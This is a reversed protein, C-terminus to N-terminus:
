RAAGEGVATSSSPVVEADAGLLGLAHGWGVLQTANAVGAARVLDETSAKVDAPTIKAAKAIDALASHEALATLLRRQDEDAAFSPRVVSLSPVPVQRHLLLAHALVPRSSRPPCRLSRRMGRIHSTVTAGSLHGEAAIESNTRGRVLREAIRKQAPTIPTIPAATTM